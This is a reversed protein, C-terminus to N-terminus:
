DETAIGRIERVIFNHNVAIFYLEVEDLESAAPADQAEAFRLGAQSQFLLQGRRIGDDPLLFFQEAGKFGRQRSDIPLLMIRM